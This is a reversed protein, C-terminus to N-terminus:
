LWPTYFLPSHLPTVMIVLNLTIALMPVARLSELATIESITSALTLLVMIDVQAFAVKQVMTTAGMAISAGGLWSSASIWTMYARDQDQMLLGLVTLGSHFVMSLSALGGSPTIQALGNCADALTSTVLEAISPRHMKSGGLVCDRM